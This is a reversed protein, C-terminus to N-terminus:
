IWGMIREKKREKAEKKKERRRMSIIDYFNYFFHELNKKQNVKKWSKAQNVLNKKNKPTGFEDFNFYKEVKKEM